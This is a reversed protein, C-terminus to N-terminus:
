SSNQTICKMSNSRKFFMSNINENEENIIGSNEKEEEIKNKYEMLNNNSKKIINSYLNNMYEKNKLM